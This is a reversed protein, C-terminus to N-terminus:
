PKRRRPKHPTTSRLHASGANMAGTMGATGLASMATMSRSLGESVPMNNYYTSSVHKQLNEMDGRANELNKVKRNLSLADGVHDAKLNEAGFGGAESLKGRKQAVTNLLDDSVDM